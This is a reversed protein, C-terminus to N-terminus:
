PFSDGNKCGPLDIQVHYVKTALYLMIKFEENEQRMRRFAPMGLM